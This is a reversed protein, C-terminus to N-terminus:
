ETNKCFISEIAKSKIQLGKPDAIAVLKGNHYIGFDPIIRITRIKEGTYTFGEQLVYEEKMKFEIGNQRLLQSFDYERTSDYHVGDVDKSKAGYKHGKGKKPAVIQGKTPKGWVGPSIEQLGKDVMDKM